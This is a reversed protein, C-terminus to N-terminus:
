VMLTESGRRPSPYTAAPGGDRAAFAIWFTAGCGPQSQCGVQGGHRAVISRVISLGIGTGDFRRGHLRQFPQFLNASGSDFGVGNDRIEIRLRDADRSSCVAVEPAPVASSFKVANGILNVFVQKLLASDGHPLQPLPEIRWRVREAEPRALRVTEVSEGVVRDLDVQQLDLPLQQAQAFRMLAAILDISAQGQRSIAQLLEVARGHSGARVLDAALDALGKIGGLPGRLDHSVTRNFSELGDVMERLEATREAVRHELQENAERLSAEAAMRLQLERALAARARFQGVALLTTGAIGFPVWTWLRVRLEPASVIWGLLVVVPQVLFAAAIFAFGVGPERRQAQVAMGALILMLLALCVHATLPEAVGLAHLVIAAVIWVAALQAARRVPETEHQTYLCMGAAMAIGAAAAMGLGVASTNGFDQLLPNKVLYIAAGIGLALAFAGYGPDRTRSRVWLFLSALLGLM